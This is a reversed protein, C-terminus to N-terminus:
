RFCMLYVFLHKKQPKPCLFLLNSKHKGSQDTRVVSDLGVDDVAAVDAHLGKGVAAVQLDVFLVDVAVLPLEGAVGAGLGELPLLVDDAM